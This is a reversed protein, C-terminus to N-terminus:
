NIRHYNRHALLLIISNFPYPFHFYVNNNNLSKQPEYVLSFTTCICQFLTMDYNTINNTKYSPCWCLFGNQSSKLVSM